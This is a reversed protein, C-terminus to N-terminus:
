AYEKIVKMSAMERREMSETLKRKMLSFEVELKAGNFSLFKLIKFKIWEFQDRKCLLLLDGFGLKEDAAAIFKKRIIFKMHAYADEKKYLDSLQAM